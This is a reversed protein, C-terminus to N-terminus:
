KNQMAGLHCISSGYTLNRSRLSTMVNLMISVRGNRGFEGDRLSSPYNDKPVFRLEM